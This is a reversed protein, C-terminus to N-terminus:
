TGRIAFTGVLGATWLSDTDIKSEPPMESLAAETAESRKAMAVLVSTAPAERESPRRSCASTYERLAQRPSTADGRSPM